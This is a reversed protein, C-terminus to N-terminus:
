KWKNRKIVRKQYKVTKGNTELINIPIQQLLKIIAAELDKVFQESEEWYNCWSLTKEWKLQPEQFSLCMKNYEM